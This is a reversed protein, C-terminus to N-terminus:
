MVIITFKTSAATTITTIATTRHTERQRQKVIQHGKRRVFKENRRVVIIALTTKNHVRSETSAKNETMYWRM